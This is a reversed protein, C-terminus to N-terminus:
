IQDEIPIESYDCRHPTCRFIKGINCKRGKYTPCTRYARHKYDATCRYGKHHGCPLTLFAHKRMEASHINKCVYYSHKGCPHKQYRHNHAASSDPDYRHGCPGKPDPYEHEHGKCTMYLGVGGVTCKDGHENKPCARTDHMGRRCFYDMHGCLRMKSKLCKPIKKCAPCRNQSELCEDLATKAAKLADKKEKLIRCARLYDATTVSAEMDNRFDNYYGLNSSPSTLPGLVASALYGKRKERMTAKATTVEAEANEVAEEHTQCTFAINVVFMPILLVLLILVTNTKM